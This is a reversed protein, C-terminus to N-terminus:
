KFQDVWEDALYSKASAKKDLVTSGHKLLVLYGASEKGSVRPAHDGSRGDTEISVKEVVCPESAISFRDRRRADVTVKRTGKSLLRANRTEETASPEENARENGSQVPKYFFFYDVTYNDLHTTTNAVDITLQQTETYSRTTTTFKRKEGDRPNERDEQEVQKDSDKDIKGSVSLVGSHISAAEEALSEMRLEDKFAKTKELAKVRAFDEAFFVARSSEKLAARKYSVSGTDTMLTIAAADIKMLIGEREQGSMMTIAVQSGLSPAVFAPAIEKKATEYFVRLENEQAVSTLCLAAAIMLSFLKNM